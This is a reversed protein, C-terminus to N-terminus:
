IILIIIKEYIRKLEECSKSDIEKKHIIKALLNQFINFVNEEENEDIKLEVNKIKIDRIEIKIDEFRKNMDKIIEDYKIKLNAIEEINIKNNKAKQNEKNEKIIKNM